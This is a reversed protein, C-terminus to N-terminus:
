HPRRGAVLGKDRRAEHRPKTLLRHPKPRRKIARPEIRDPRQGVPYGALNHLYLDVLRMQGADDLLLIATWGAAIAQMAATFSLERPSVDADYAAELITKRILNYALLATWIEKRVMHPSRCRLVDIGLSVKIARIDLEVLWRKHYLAAIDQSSYTRHDTLTTVVVLTETRFGPQHVHVRLERVDLFEPMQEYTELDMWTPRQPRHWRALHDEKGLSQGRRFDTIRQQHQRVVVDVGRERALAIMFYSCLYRDAVFIDGRPLQELLSRFLATEGTEKGAYTGMAMGTLLATALSLLVVIRILPFGLGQEQSTPQPWAAQNAPTDPASLTTGDVLHVHRRRWLWASPATEECRDALQVALRELVVEPLKARARCYAGTDSSVRRHLAVMLVAVRAVAAVCSRHEAKFVAQSLFAWLTVSPTYVDGAEQAFTVGEADFAAQIDEESLVDAYALDDRQLFSQQVVRFRRPLGGPFTRFSM